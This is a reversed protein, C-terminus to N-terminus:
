RNEILHNKLQEFARARHSVVNKDDGDIQAFTKGFPEYYFIPDYGFGGSGRKEHLIEGHVEGNFEAIVEGNLVLCLACVFKADRDSAGKLMDLLKVINKEDTADPGSYRSSYIGPAGGLAEVSLGSDDGVTYMGKDKVFENYFLAKGKANEMFTKGTEEFEDTIGLDSLTYLKVDLKEESFLEEIEKLKGKNKTAILIEM